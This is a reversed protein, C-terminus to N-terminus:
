DPKPLSGSGPEAASKPLSRPSSVSFHAFTILAALMLGSYDVGLAVNQLAREAFRRRHRASFTM